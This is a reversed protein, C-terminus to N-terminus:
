ETAGPQEHGYEWYIKLHQALTMPDFPKIIVGAAGHELLAEIEHPLARASMLVIPTSQAHPLERIALMAEPGTMKPMMVDLLILDPQFSTAQAVAQVGDPCLCVDYGGVVSLSLDLIERIDPDDEACLVRRFQTM